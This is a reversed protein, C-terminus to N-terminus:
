CVADIEEQFKVDIQDLNNSLLLNDCYSFYSFVPINLQIALKYWEYM